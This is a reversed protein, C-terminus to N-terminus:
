KPEKKDCLWNLIVEAKKSVEKDKEDYPTVKIPLEELM